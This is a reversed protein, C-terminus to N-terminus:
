RISRACAGHCSSIGFVMALLTVLEGVTQDEEAAIGDHLLYYLEMREYAAHRHRYVRGSGQVGRVAQQEKTTSQSSADQEDIEM